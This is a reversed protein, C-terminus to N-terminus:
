ESAAGASASAAIVKRAARELLHIDTPVDSVLVISGDPLRRTLVLAFEEAHAPMEGIARAPLKRLKKALPARMESIPAATPAPLARRSQRDAEIISRLGGKTQVLFGALKGREVDLRRAYALVAAYETLRTKDHNAGFVLKVVPIMPARAQMKLGAREVLQAYEDPAREAALVFDYACGIAEYLANRSRAEATRATQALERAAALSSALDRTAKAPAVVALDSAPRVSPVLDLLPRATRTPRVPDPLPDVSVLFYPQSPAATAQGTTEDPEAVEELLLVDSGPASTDLDVVQSETLNLVAEMDEGCEHGLESDAGELMSEAQLEGPADM